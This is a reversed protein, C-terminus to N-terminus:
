GELRGLIHDLTEPPGVWRGSARLDRVAQVLSANGSAAAAKVAELTADDDELARAIAEPDGLAALGQRAEWAVNAEADDLQRRLAEAVDSRSCRLARGLAYLAWDRTEGDDDDALGLLTAEIEPSRGFNSLAYAVSSRVERDPHEAHRLILGLDEPEGVRGLGCIATALDDPGADEAIARLLAVAADRHVSTDFALAGLLVVAGRRRGDDEAHLWRRAAAIADDPEDGAHKFLEAEVREVDAGEDLARRLRDDATMPQSM